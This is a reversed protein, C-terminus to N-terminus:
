KIKQEMIVILLGFLLFGIIFIFMLLYDSFSFCIRSNFFFFVCIVFGTSYMFIQKDKKSM